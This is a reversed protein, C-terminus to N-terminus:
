KPYPLTSCARVRYRRGKLSRGVEPEKRYPEVVVGGVGRVSVSPRAIVSGGAGLVFATDRRGGLWSTKFEADRRLRTERFSKAEPSRSRHSGSECWCTQRRCCAGTVLTEQRVDCELVVTAKKSCGHAARPLKTQQHEWPRNPLGATSSLMLGAIAAAFCSLAWCWWVRQRVLLVSVVWDVSEVGSVVASAKPCLGRRLLCEFRERTLGLVTRAIAPLM